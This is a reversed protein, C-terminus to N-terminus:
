NILDLEIPNNDKKIKEKMRAEAEKMMKANDPSNGKMILTAGGVSLQKLGITPDAKYQDTLKQFQKATVAIEKHEFVNPNTTDSKLNKIGKLEFSHSRRDDEVAVIMGPLGHFKYPGEQLPIENCFWATWHRGAFNTDAKQAQWEGIKKREPLIKWQMKRPDAVNYADALIQSHLATVFNPYSKSVRYRVLGKKMDSRVNISGTERLQKELDAKMISDSKFVVDSYFVSGNKSVDLNMIETKVDSLNTSDSIYRYEYYFRQNQAPVLIAFFVIFLPLYKKM